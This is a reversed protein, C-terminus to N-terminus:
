LREVLDICLFTTAEGVLLDVNNTGAISQAYLEIYEGELVTTEVCFPITHNGVLGPATIVFEKCIGNVYPMAFYRKNAIINQYGILGYILYRGNIPAICRHNVSDFNSGDDWIIANLNVKTPMGSVLNNQNSSLYAKLSVNNTTLNGGFTVQPNM